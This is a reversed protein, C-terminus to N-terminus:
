KAATVDESNAARWVLNQFRITRGPGTTSGLSLLAGPEIKAGDPVPQDAFWLGDSASARLRHYAM